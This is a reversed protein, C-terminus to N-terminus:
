FFILFPTIYYNVFFIIILIVIIKRIVCIFIIIYFIIIIIIILIFNHFILFFFFFILRFIIFFSFNLFSYNYIYIILFNVSFKNTKFIAIFVNKLSSFIFFFTGTFGGGNDNFGIFSATPM